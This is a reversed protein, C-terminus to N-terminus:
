LGTSLVALVKEITNWSRVTGPADLIKEIKGLYSIAKMERRYVGIVFQRQISVIKLLCNDPSPLYLPLTPIKRPREHLVSMFRTIEPGAREGRFPDNSAVKILDRAPVIMIECKIRFSKALQAAFKKRITSEAVDNRVVFTGVAGINVIDLPQLSKALQAPKCLNGGGVNIARLFIVWAM